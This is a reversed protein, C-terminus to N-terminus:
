AANILLVKFITRIHESLKKKLVDLYETESLHNLQYFEKYYQQGIMMQWVTGIMTNLLLVVDIDAKFEGKKQGDQILESVLELNRIKLQNAVQVIAPNKNTVLECVMIRSFYQRQMVREIHEDILLSVKELTTMSNDKLLGVVRVQVKGIRAEFLAEMLKEKSGFYYSIMAVNVNAEDAIDRVSTGDFGKNAFLKEAALMILEQKENFEM